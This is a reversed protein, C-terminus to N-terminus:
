QNYLDPYGTSTSVSSRGWLNASTTNYSGAVGQQMWKVHGDCFLYNSGNSHPFSQRQCSSTALSAASCPPYTSYVHQFGDNMAPYCGTYVGATSLGPGEALAIINSAMTILSQTVPVHIGTTTYYRDMIYWNLTYCSTITMSSPVVNGSVTYGTVTLDPCQYVGASKIYPYLNGIWFSQNNPVWQNLTGSWYQEPYAEDYDQVYQMMAVGLQKENSACSTQRAKERATAFVPFLIAALIAIIAIVVLLEILTFATRGSHRFGPQIQGAEFRMM